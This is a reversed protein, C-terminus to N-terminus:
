IQRREFGELSGGSLPRPLEHTQVVDNRVFLFRDVCGKGPGFFPLIENRSSLDSGKGWSPYYEDESVIARSRVLLLLSSTLPPPSDHIRQILPLPFM